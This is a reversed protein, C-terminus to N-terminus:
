TREKTVIGAEIVAKAHERMSKRGQEPMHGWPYDMCEALKQAAADVQAESLPQVASPSPSAALLNRLGDAAAKRTAPGANSELISAAVAMGKRWGEPVGGAQQVIPKAQGAPIAALARASSRIESLVAQAEGAETDHDRGEKGEAYALEWYRDVLAMLADVRTQPTTM